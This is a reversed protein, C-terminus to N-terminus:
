FLYVPILSLHYVHYSITWSNFIFLPFFHPILCICPPRLFPGMCSDVVALFQSISRLGDTVSGTGPQRTCSHCVLTSLILSTAMSAPFSPLIVHPFDTSSPSQSTLAM